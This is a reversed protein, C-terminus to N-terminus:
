INQIVVRSIDQGGQGPRPGRPRVCCLFCTPPLAKGNSKSPSAGEGTGWDLTVPFRLCPFSFKLRRSSSHMIGGASFADGRAKWPTPSFLRICLRMLKRSRRARHTPSQESYDRHHMRTKGSGWEGFSAWSHLKIGAWVFDLRSPKFELAPEKRRTDPLGCILVHAILHIRRSGRTM